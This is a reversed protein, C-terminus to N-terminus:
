FAVAHAGKFGGQGYSMLTNAGRVHLPLVDCRTVDKSDSPVCDLPSAHVHPPRPRPPDERVLKLELSNTHFSAM